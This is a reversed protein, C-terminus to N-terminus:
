NKKNKDLGKIIAEKIKVRKSLDEPATEIIEVNSYFGSESNCLGYLYAYLGLAKSYQKIDQVAKNILDKIGSIDKYHNAIREGVVKICKESVTESAYLGTQLSDNIAEALFNYLVLANWNAATYGNKLQAPKVEFEIIGNEEVEKSFEKDKTACDAVGNAIVKYISENYDQRNYWANGSIDNVKLSAYARWSTEHVFYKFDKDEEANVM